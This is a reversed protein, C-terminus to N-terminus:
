YSAIDPEGDIISVITYGDKKYKEIDNENPSYLIAKAKDPDFQSYEKGGMRSSTGKEFSSGGKFVYFGDVYDNHNQKIIKPDNITKDNENEKLVKKIEEKIIQRLESKKM